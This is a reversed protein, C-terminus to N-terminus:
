ITGDSAIAILGEWDSDAVLWDSYKSPQGLAASFLEGGSKVLKGDKKIAAFTGGSSGSIQRWDSGHGIRTLGQREKGATHCGWLTGDTKLAMFGDNCTGIAKWDADWGIRSPEPILSIWFRRSYNNTGNTRSSLIRWLTGDAQLAVVEGSHAALDVWNSGGLFT